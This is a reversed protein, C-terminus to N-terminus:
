VAVAVAAVVAAGTSSAVHSVQSYSLEKKLRFLKKNREMRM